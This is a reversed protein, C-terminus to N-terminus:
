MVVREFFSIALVQLAEPHSALSKIAENLTAELGADGDQLAAKSAADVVKHFSDNSGDAGLSGPNATSNFGLQNDLIKRGTLLHILSISDLIVVQTSM